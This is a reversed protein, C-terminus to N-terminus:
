AGLVHLRVSRREQELRGLQGLRGSNLLSPCKQFQSSGDLTLGFPEFAPNLGRRCRM